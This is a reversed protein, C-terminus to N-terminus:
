YFVEELCLGQPPATMGPRLTPDLLSDRVREPSMKGLGIEVLTGTMIRVMNRLFGSGFVDIWVLDGDREVQIRDIRRVTTSAACGTTRYAAFDHEGVFYDAALRMLHIDIESDLRWAYNRILPSRYKALFICYRYHKGKAGYRPSFELSVEESRKVAIDPPLICNLGECFASLPLSRETMFTAVMGRAHVGADTRGSSRLVVQEGTRQSIAEEMVAQISLGNPQRQWGVYATGDYEITLKIQRM